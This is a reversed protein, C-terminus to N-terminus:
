GARKALHSLAQRSSRMRQMFDAHCGSCYTHTFPNGVLRVGYMHEYARKSIWRDAEGDVTKRARVLGCVCCMAILSAEVPRGHNVGLRFTAM